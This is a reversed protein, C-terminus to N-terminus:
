AAMVSEYIQVQDAAQIEEYHPEYRVADEDNANGV